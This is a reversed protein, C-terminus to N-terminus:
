LGLCSSKCPSGVELFIAPFNFRPIVNVKYILVTSSSRISEFMSYLVVFRLRTRTNTQYASVFLTPMCEHSICARNMCISFM